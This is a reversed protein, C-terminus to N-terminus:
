QLLFFQVVRGKVHLTETDLTFLLSEFFIFFGLHPSEGVGQARRTGIM